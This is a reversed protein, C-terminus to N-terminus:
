RLDPTSSGTRRIGHSPPPTGSKLFNTLTHSTGSKGSASTIQITLTGLDQPTDSRGGAMEGIVFEKTIQFSRSPGVPQAPNPIRLTVNLVYTGPEVDEVRFSGDAAIAVPHSHQARAWKKAEETQSWAHFGARDGSEPRLVEPVKLTITGRANKWDVPSDAGSAALRGIVPRGRGGLLITTTDGVRVVATASQSEGAAPGSEMHAVRYEGPPITPFAFKGEADTQARFNALFGPPQATTGYLM